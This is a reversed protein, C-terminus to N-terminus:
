HKQPEHQTFIDKVVVIEHHSDERRYKEIELSVKHDMGTEDVIQLFFKSFYPITISFNGDRDTTAQFVTRGKWSDVVSLKVNSWNQIAAEDSWTHERFKIVGTITLPYTQIDMDFEYIDDDYGGNKRNSTFYGRVGTPDLTLGFDDFGSNLPYGMNQPEGYGDVKIETKFIDFQGIGPQGNSSFYLTSDSHLYPFVEDRSTNIGEGLNLPKSWRDGGWESCYIDNSGFGGKMDSSFFIKKGDERITVDNISYATSNYPFSSIIQWQSGDLSAFYLGLTSKGSGEAKDSSAVFVMQTNKNYFVVPGTNFRSNIQGAFVTPKGFVSGWQVTSDKRLSSKYLQYFPANLKANVEEIAKVSRRNSTFVIGDGYVVPCLEGFQTNITLTRIAFTSSDEYLFHINDLRWIKKAILDNEPDTKLCRKYFDIAVSYNKLSVQAEAYMYMDGPPLVGGGSLYTDYQVVSQRYEKLQFYSQALRLRASRDGSNSGLINRYLEIAETFSGEAYSKDALKQKDQLITFISTQCEGNKTAM